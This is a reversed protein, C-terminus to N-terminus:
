LGQQPTTNNNLQNVKEIFENYTDTPTDEYTIYGMDTEFYEKMLTLCEDENETNSNGGIDADRSIGFIMADDKTYFLMGHKNPNSDDTSRWYLNYEANKATELYNMLDDVSDFKIETKSSYQPFEYEDSSEARQPLFHNLFDNGKQKSRTKVAVYIDAFQGM